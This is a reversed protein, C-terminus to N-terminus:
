HKLIFQRLREAFYPKYKITKQLEQRGLDVLYYGVHKTFDNNGNQSLLLAAKAVDLENVQSHKSLTEINQRYFNRSGFDMNLYVGSPDQNLIADVVSVSEFILQWSLQSLTILSIVANSFSVQELSKDLQEARIINPVTAHLKSEVWKQLLP